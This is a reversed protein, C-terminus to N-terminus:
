SKGRPAIAAIAKIAAHWGAAFENRLGTMFHDPYVDFEHREDFPAKWADHPLSPAADRTAYVIQKGFAWADFTERSVNTWRGPAQEVQYIAVPRADAGQASEGSKRFQDRVHLLVPCYHAHPQWHEAKCNCVPEDAGQTPAVPKDRWDTPGYAPPLSLMPGTGNDHWCICDPSSSNESPCGNVKYFYQRTM